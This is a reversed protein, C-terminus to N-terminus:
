SANRQEDNYACEMKCYCGQCVDYDCVDCRLVFEEVGNFGILTKIYPITRGCINCSLDRKQTFWFTHRKPCHIYYTKSPQKNNKLKKKKVLNSEQLSKINAVCM